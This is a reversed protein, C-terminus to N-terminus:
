APAARVGEGFGRLARFVELAFAVKGFPASVQIGEVADQIREVMERAIALGEEMGAERSVESARAMRELIPRPM